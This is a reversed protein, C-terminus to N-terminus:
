GAHPRRHATAMAIANVDKRVYTAEVKELTQRMAESVAAKVIARVYFGLGGVLISTWTGLAGVAHWSFDFQLLAFM